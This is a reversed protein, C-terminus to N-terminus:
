GDPDATFGEKAGQQKINEWRSHLNTYDHAFTKMLYSLESSPPHIPQMNDTTPLM